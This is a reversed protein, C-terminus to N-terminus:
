FRARFRGLFRKRPKSQIWLKARVCSKCDALDNLTEEALAQATETITQPRALVDPLTLPSFKAGYNRIFVRQQRLDVIPAFTDDTEPAFFVGIKEQQLEKEVEINVKATTLLAWLAGAGLVFEPALATLAPGFEVVTRGQPVERVLDEIMPRFSEPTLELSKLLWDTTAPGPQVTFTGSFAAVEDFRKRYYDPDVPTPEPGPIVPVPANLIALLPKQVFPIADSIAAYGLGKRFANRLCCKVCPPAGLGRGKFVQDVHTPKPPLKPM